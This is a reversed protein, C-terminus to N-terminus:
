SSVLKPKTRMVTEAVESVLSNMVTSVEVPLIPVPSLKVRLKLALVTVVLVAAEAFGAFSNADVLCAMVLDDAFFAAFFAGALDFVFGAFFAAEM